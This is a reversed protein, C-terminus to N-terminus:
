SRRVHRGPGTGPRRGLAALVQAVNQAFADATEGAWAKDPYIEYSGRYKAPTVNPMVVNAGRRLGLARGEAKNMAALATTAPLNADPRVLRTLALVKCASEADSPMQRPVASRTAGPAGLATGPHPIFPGIGIMDLDLSRFLAIDDAVSDITQGPIGVMIGSGVEYDLARLAELLRFRDAGGGALPPHISAYLAHDSTEFRLLYRDAGAERWATLEDETREGLSLTIALGTEGRIRRVLGTVREKTFGRDEGSQMVVTGFGLAKARRACELIEDDEMRYRPIATNGAHIGCYACRRACHNSIEILGRLHVEDGVARERVEDAARWLEALRAPDTEELWARIADRSLNEFEEFGHFFDGGGGKEFPTNKIPDM